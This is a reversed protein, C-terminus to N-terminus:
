YQNSGDRTGVRGFSGAELEWGRSGAGLEWSFNSKGLGGGKSQFFRSPRMWDASLATGVKAEGCNLSGEKLRVVHPNGLRVRKERIM